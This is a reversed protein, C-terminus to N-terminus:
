QKKFILKVLWLDDGMERWDPVAGAKGLGALSEM